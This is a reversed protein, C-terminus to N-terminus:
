PGVQRRNRPPHLTAPERANSTPLRVCPTPPSPFLPPAAIGDVPPPPPRPPGAVTPRTGPMKLRPTSRFRANRTPLARRAEGGPTAEGGAEGRRARAQAGAR